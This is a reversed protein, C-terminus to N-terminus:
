HGRVATAAGSEMPRSGRAINRRVRGATTRAPTRCPPIPRARRGSARPPCRTRSRRVPAHGAGRCVMQDHRRRRSVPVSPEDIYSTSAAASARVSRAPSPVGPSAVSPPCAPSSTNTSMTRTGSKEITSKPAPCTPRATTRVKAWMSQRMWHISVRSSAKGAAIGSLTTQTVVSVGSASTAAAGAPAYKRTMVCLWGCSSASASRM